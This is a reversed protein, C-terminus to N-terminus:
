LAAKLAIAGIVAAASLLSSLIKNARDKANEDGEFAQQQAIKYEELLKEYEQRKQEIEKSSINSMQQTIMSTDISSATTIGGGSEAGSMSYALNPNVGARRMDEIKRSIANDEREQVEKRIRDERAWQENRWKRSQEMLGSIDIGSVSTEVDPNEINEMTENENNDQEAASNENKMYGYYDEKVTGDEQMIMTTPQLGYLHQPTFAM